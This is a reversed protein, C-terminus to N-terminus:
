VPNLKQSVDTELSRTTKGGNFLTSGQLRNFYMM